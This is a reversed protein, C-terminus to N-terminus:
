KGGLVSQKYDRDTQARKELAQNEKLRAMVTAIIQELVSADLFTNRDMVRVTSEMENIEVDV